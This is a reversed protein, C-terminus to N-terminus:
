LGLKEFIEGWEEKVARFKYLFALPAPAFLWKPTFAIDGTNPAGSFTFLLLSALYLLLLILSLGGVINLAILIKKM